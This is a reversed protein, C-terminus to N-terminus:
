IAALDPWASVLAAAAEAHILGNTALIQRRYMDYPGGSLASVIGGAERVLVVGAAVDWPHISTAYFADLGGAAVLALNLATSGTRRVSHTGTSMRSLLALQRDADDAFDTPLGTSILSERLSPAPGVRLREGNLTAGGGLRASYTRGALPDHIVGVVLRGAYELAISVCWFPFGHAFNITGDLPDVVWRWPNAPDPQVNDEEALLTHDPFADALIAAIRAQSATDAETVLDGPRKERAAVKGYLGLLVSGAERAATEAVRLHPGLDVIM